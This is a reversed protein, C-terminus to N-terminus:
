YNVLGLTHDARSLTITIADVTCVMFSEPMVGAPVTVAVHLDGLDDQLAQV